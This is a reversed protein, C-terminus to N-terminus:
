GSGESHRSFKWYSSGTDVSPQCKGWTLTPSDTKAMHDPYTDRVAVLLQSAALVIECSQSPVSQSLIAPPPGPDAAAPGARTRRHQFSRTRWQTGTTSCRRLLAGEWHEPAGPSHVRSLEDLQKLHRDDAQLAAHRLLACLRGPPEQMSSVLIQGVRTLRHQLFLYISGENSCRITAPSNQRTCSRASRSRM